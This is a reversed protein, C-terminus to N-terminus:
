DKKLSSLSMLTMVSLGILLWDSMLRKLDMVNDPIPRRSACSDCSYCGLCGRCKKDIIITQDETIDDVTYTVTFTGAQFLFYKHFLERTKEISNDYEGFDPIKAAIADLDYDADSAINSVTIVKGACNATVGKFADAIDQHAADFDDCAVEVTSEAVKISVTGGLECVDLQGDNNTDLRVFQDPTLRGELEDPSLFGDDNQDLDDFNDLIDGTDPEGEGEVPEGEVPEGEVPEGEVPEGEVPEGEVPEGEVPEGEVPEGEVPEGEVPEGEVPEGEVPEGEVPEGEGEVPEGEGEVPEGEGEVPEGEGEVPEGEGEVPEGEGEVPEGEGEVVPEADLLITYAGTAFVGGGLDVGAVRFYYPVGADLALTLPASYEEHVDPLAAAPDNLIADGNFVAVTAGAFSETLSLIYDDAVDPTYTYWVDAGDAPGQAVALSSMCVLVLGLFAGYKLNISM